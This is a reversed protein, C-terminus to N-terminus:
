ETQEKWPEPLPMWAIIKANRHMREESADLIWKGGTALFPDPDYEGFADGLM